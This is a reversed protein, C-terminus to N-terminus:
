TQIHNLGNISHQSVTIIFQNSSVKKHFYLFNWPEYKRLKSLNARTVVNVLQASTEFHLASIRESKSGHFFSYGLAFDVIGDLLCLICKFICFLFYLAPEKM